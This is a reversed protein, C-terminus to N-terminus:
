PHASSSNQSLNKSVGTRTQIRHQGRIEQLRRTTIAPKGKWKLGSSPKFGIDGTVDASRTIMTPGMPEIRTSPTAVIRSSQM